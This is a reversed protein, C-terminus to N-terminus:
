SSPPLVVVRRGFRYGDISYAGPGLLVLAVCDFTTIAALAASDVGFMSWIWASVVLTAFTSLSTLYGAALSLCITAVVVSSWRGLQHAEELGVTALAVAVSLRLLVLGFGAWGTPFM